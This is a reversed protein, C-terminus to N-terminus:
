KTKSANIEDFAAQLEEAVDQPTMTRDAAFSQLVTRWNTLYEGSLQATFNGAHAINGTEKAEMATKIVEPMEVTVGPVVSPGLTRASWKGAAEPTLLYEMLKLAEQANESKGNVMFIQDLQICYSNPKGDDRPLPFMGYKADPNFEQIQAFAWTGDYIMAAQGAAMAQRAMTTDNSMDDLRSYAMRRGWLEVAKLFEPTDTFKAEGSMLKEFVDYKGNEMVLPWMIGRVEIDPYTVNSNNRIWPDVGNQKLTECLADLEDQTAPAALGYKAFIDKNYIVGYTKFDLPLAYVKGQYSCDGIDAKTLKLAEIIPSDTLDMVYGADIIDTYQSPQGMMIDPADGAGVRVRLQTIYENQSLAQADFTVNPNLAMYDNMIENFTDLKVANGMYTLIKITVPAKTEAFALQALSLLLALSLVFALVKKM